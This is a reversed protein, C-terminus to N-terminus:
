RLEVKLLHMHISQLRLPVPRLARWAWLLIHLPPVTCPASTETELPLRQGVSSLLVGPFLAPVMQDQTHLM